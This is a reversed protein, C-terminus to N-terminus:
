KKKMAMFRMLNSLLKNSAKNSARGVLRRVAEPAYNASVLYDYLAELVTACKKMAYDAIVRVDNQQEIQSMASENLCDTYDGSANVVMQYEEKSFDTTKYEAYANLSILLFLPTFVYSTINKM